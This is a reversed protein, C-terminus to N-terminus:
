VSKSINFSPIIIRQNTEGTKLILGGFEKEMKLMQYTFSLAALVTAVDSRAGLSEKLLLLGAFEKETLNLGVRKVNITAKSIQKKM